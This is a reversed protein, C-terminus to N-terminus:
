IAPARTRSRPRAHRQANEMLLRTQPDCREFLENRWEFGALDIDNSPNLGGLWLKDDWVIGTEHAPGNRFIGALQPPGGTRPDRGVRLADCFGSFVSRSTRGPGDGNFWAAVEALASGRGTGYACVVGSENPLEKESVHWGDERYEHATVLFKGSMYEGLRRAFVVSTGHLSREPFTTSLQQLRDHLGDDSMSVNPLGTFLNQGLTVDGAFGLIEAQIPRISIKRGYSWQQGSPWTFMSDAAINISSPGRQDIGCWCVLTTM